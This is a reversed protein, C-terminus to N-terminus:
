AMAEDCSSNNATSLLAVGTWASSDAAFDDESVADNTM